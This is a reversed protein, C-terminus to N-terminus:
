NPQASPVNASVDAILVTPPTWCTPQHHVRRRKRQAKSWGRRISETRRVIEEPSPDHSPSEEDDDPPEDPFRVM